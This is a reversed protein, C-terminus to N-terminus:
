SRQSSRDVLERSGGSTARPSATTRIRRGVVVFPLTSVHTVNMRAQLFAPLSRLARRRTYNVSVRAWQTRLEPWEGFLWHGEFTRKSAVRDKRAQRRTTRVAGLDDTVETPVPAAFNTRVYQLAERVIPTVHGTRARRVFTDWDFDDSACRLLLVLDPVWRVVREWESRYAHLVVHMALDHAAPALMTWDGLAIPTADAWLAADRDANPTVWPELRWHLDVVADHDPARLTAEPRGAIERPLPNVVRWGADLMAAIARPADVPDVLVDADTMPRLGWDRYASVVLPVGKLGMMSIGATDLVDRALRLQTILLENSARTREAIAALAPLQPDEVGAVVLARWVLPLLKVARRDDLRAVDITPGIRQWQEAAVDSSALGVRLLQEHFPALRIAM